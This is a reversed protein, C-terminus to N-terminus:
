VGKMFSRLKNLDILTPITECDNTATWTRLIQYSCDDIQVTEDTYSIDVDDDCDDTASATGTVSPDSSVDCEVQMDAPCTIVPPTTDTVLIKQTCTTTNRIVDLCM